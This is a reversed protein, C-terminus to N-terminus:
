GPLHAFLILESFSRCISFTLRILNESRWQKEIKAQSTRLVDSLVLIFALQGCILLATLIITRSVLNLSFRM